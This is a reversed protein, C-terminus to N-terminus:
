GFLYWIIAIFAFFSVLTVICGRLGFKKYIIEGGFDGGVQIATEVMTEIIPAM